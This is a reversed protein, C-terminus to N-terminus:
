QLSSTLPRLNPHLNLMKLTVVNWFAMVNQFPMQCAIGNRNTVWYPLWWGFYVFILRRCSFTNLLKWSISAGCDVAKYHLSTQECVRVYNQFLPEWLTCFQGNIPSNLLCPPSFVFSAIPVVCIIEFCLFRKNIWFCPLRFSYRM